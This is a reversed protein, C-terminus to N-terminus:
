LKEMRKTWISFSRADAVSLKSLKKNRNVSKLTKLETETLHINYKQPRAM